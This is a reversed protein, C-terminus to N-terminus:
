PYEILTPCLHMFTVYLPICIKDFAIFLHIVLIHFPLPCGYVVKAFIQADKSKLGEEGKTSLNAEYGQTPSNVNLHGRVGKGTLM